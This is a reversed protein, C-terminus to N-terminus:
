RLVSIYWSKKLPGFYANVFLFNIFTSINLLSVTYIELLIWDYSYINSALYVSTSEKFQVLSSQLLGPPLWILIAFYSCAERM